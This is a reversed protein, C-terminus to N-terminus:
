ARIFGGPDNLLLSLFLSLLFIKLSASLSSPLLLPATIETCRASDYFCLLFFALALVFAPCALRLQRPASCLPRLTLLLSYFSSERVCNQVVRRRRDKLVSASREDRQVKGAYRKRKKKEGVQRPLALPPRAPSFFDVRCLYSQRARACGRFLSPFRPASRPELLLASNWPRADDLRMLRASPRRSAAFVLTSHADSNMFHASSSPARKSDDKKRTVVCTRTTFTARLIQPKGSEVLASCSSPPSRERHLNRLHIRLVYINSYLSILLAQHTNKSSRRPHCFDLSLEGVM